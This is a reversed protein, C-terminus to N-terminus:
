TEEGRAFPALHRKLVRIAEEPSGANTFRLYRVWPRRAYFRTMERDFRTLGTASIEQKRMSLVPHPATLHVVPLSVYLVSALWAWRSFHARDAKRGVYLFDALFRDIVLGRGGSAVLRRRLRVVAALYALVPLAEDIREQTFRSGTIRNLRYLTRFLLSRRYLSKGLVYEHWGVGAAVLAKGVTSKGIGDPGVLVVARVGPPPVSRRAWGRRLADELRRWPTRWRHRRGLEQELIGSARALLEEPLAGPPAAAVSALAEGLGDQETGGGALAAAYDDLRTRVGASSLNKRKARLHELYVAVELRLPMRAFGGDVSRCLPVVDQWRLSRRGDALQWLDTWLDLHLAHLLDGSYLSVRTKRPGTREVLLNLDLERCLDDLQVLLADVDGRGGLLDVDGADVAATGLATERLLAFRHGHGDEQIRELANVLAQRGDRAAPAATPHRRRPPDTV